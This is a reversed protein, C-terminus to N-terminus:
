RDLTVFKVEIPELVYPIEHGAVKISGSVGKRLTNAMVVHIKGGYSWARAAIDGDGGQLEPVPDDSFFIPEFAKVEKAVACVYTFSGRALAAALFNGFGTFPHRAALRSRLRGQGDLAPAM